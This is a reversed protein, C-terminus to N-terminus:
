CLMSQSPEQLAVSSVVQVSPIPRIIRLSNERKVIRGTIRDGNKLLVVAAQVSLPIATLFTIVLCAAFFTKLFHLRM